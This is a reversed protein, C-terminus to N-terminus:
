CKLVQFMLLRASIDITKIKATKFEAKEVLVHTEVGGLELWTCFKPTFITSESPVRARFVGFNEARSFFWLFNGNKATKWRFFDIKPFNRVFIREYLVHIEVKKRM